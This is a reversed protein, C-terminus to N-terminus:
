EAGDPPPREARGGVGSGDGGTPAGVPPSAPEDAPTAPGERRAAAAAEARATAARDFAQDLTGVGRTPAVHRARLAFEMVESFVPAAAVGGYHGAKPEDVMVAVVLEPDDVPAMGVFSAVYGDGYGRGDVRPKQATGTKGAVDYGDVAANGGTGGEGAVASRLITRISTATRPSVVQRGNTVPTPDLQGDPGVTGRVLRPQVALGDNALTAYSTASRLLTTAVGQGIAITPMSTAWWSDVPPLLGGVEGPFDIGTPETTGFAKLYDYLRQEGLQQAILMTGVNSSTTVIDKVTMTEVPHPHSDSFTKNAIRLQDDVRFTTSPEVVGEELAAAVTIAKQVSGPEFVDTVARNRRAAPDTGNRDTPDFRPVNAMGLVDGSEVDLVVVSAGVAEREEVARAAAEEAVAQIERDLTLVLDTGPEAPTLERLGSSITLGAPAQEIALEGPRGSLLQQHLLELGALGQGDIDTFGLVQAGLTGGPYQRRPEVLREIGPLDLSLVQEGTEWDLQRALYVFHADSRLREAITDADGDLLPALQDAAERPTVEPAVVDGDATEHARYARPDGYITAAQVSTALVDGGRDYIRGRTAPLDVTRLRQSVSKDAYQDADVVQVQVLRGGLIALVGLYAVLLGAM